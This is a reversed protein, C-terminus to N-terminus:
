LLRVALSFIKQRCLFVFVKVRIKGLLSSAENKLFEKVAENWINAHFQYTGFNEKLFAIYERENCIAKRSQNIGSFLHMLFLICQNKESLENGCMQIIKKYLRMQQIHRTAFKSNMASNPRNDYVYYQKDMIQFGKKMHLYYWVNFLLDEGITEEVDFKLYNEQIISNLYLKNWPGFGLKYTFYFQEFFLNLNDVTSEAVNQTDFVYLEKKEAIINEKLETLVDQRIYDDSDVFWIYTGRAKELGLNRASSVGGNEKHFVRIREDIKAYQECIESSYDSSGDNVIIMEFDDCNQSLISDFCRSLYEATNYVPIIISFLPM